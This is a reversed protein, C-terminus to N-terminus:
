GLKIMCKSSKTEVFVPKIAFLHNLGLWAAWIILRLLEGLAGTGEYELLHAKPSLWQRDARIQFLWSYSLYRLWPTLGFRTKLYFSFVSKYGKLVQNNSNGITFSGAHARFYVLPKAINAVYPYSESTLFSIMVDPGAGYRDFPRPTSTPFDIRLNKLLDRTRFLIAGPSVPASGILVSNVFDRASVKLSETSLYGLEASEKSVGIRAACYVLGVNLDSLMPVMEALCDSELTDDSFLIKCFEGKAEQACRLWNRVAGINKENKFIRVRQDQRAFQKCIEWTGDDSANDVVIIEFDTFTQDLASKICEAIYAKRNFVPILISVQPFSTTTNIM